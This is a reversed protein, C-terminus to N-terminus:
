SINRMIQLCFINIVIDELIEQYNQEKVSKNKHWHKEQNRTHPGTLIIEYQILLTITDTPLPTTVNKKKKKFYMKPWLINFM